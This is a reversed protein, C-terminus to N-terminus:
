RGPTLYEDPTRGDKMDGLLNKRYRAHTSALEEPTSFGLVRYVEPSDGKAVLGFARSGFERRVLLCALASERALSSGDSSPKAEGLVEDLSLGASALMENRIHYASRELLPVGRKVFPKFDGNLLECEAVLSPLLSMREEDIWIASESSEAGPKKVECRPDSLGFLKKLMSPDPVLVVKCPAVRNSDMGWRTMVGERVSEVEYRMSEGRSRDLSLVVFNKTDWKNWVLGELGAPPKRQLDATPVPPQCWGEAAVLLALAVIALRM